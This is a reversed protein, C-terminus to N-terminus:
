QGKMERDYLCVIFVCPVAATDVLQVYYIERPSFGIYFTIFLSDLPTNPHMLKYNLEDAISFLFYINLPWVKLLTSKECVCIIM